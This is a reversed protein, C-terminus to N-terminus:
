RLWEFDLGTKKRLATFQAPFCCGILCDQGKLDFYTFRRKTKRKSMLAVFRGFITVDVWDNDMKMDWHIREGDLEFELWAIGQEVDVYDRINQLPLDGGALDRMRKTIAIYAGHDEICETDFHWINDSFRRGWPHEEIEGGLVALVM